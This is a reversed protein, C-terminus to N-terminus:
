QEAKLRKAYEQKLQKEVKLDTFVAQVFQDDKKFLNIRRKGDIKYYVVGMTHHQLEKFDNGYWKEFVPLVDGLLSDASFRKNWPAWAEYTFTVPMEFIKDKQFTPYFRMMVPEEFETALKYEVSGNTPGHTFLKKKNQEWCHDYFAKREMGLSIGLFLSDNKIDHSTGPKLNECRILMFSFASILLGLFAQRM